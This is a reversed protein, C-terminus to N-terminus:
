YRIIRHLRNSKAKFGAATKYNSPQKHNTLGPYGIYDLNLFHEPIERIGSAKQGTGQALKVRGQAVYNDVFAFIPPDGPTATQVDEPFIEGLNAGQGNELGILSLAYSAPQHFCAHRFGISQPDASNKGQGIFHVKKFAQAEARNILVHKGL